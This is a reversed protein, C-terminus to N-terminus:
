TRRTHGTPHVTDDVPGPPRAPSSLEWPGTVAMRTSGGIRHELEIREIRADIRAPIVDPREFTWSVWSVRGHPQVRADVLRLATGDPLTVELSPVAVVRVDDRGRVRLIGTLRMLDDVVVLTLLSVVVDGHEATADLLSAWPRGVDFPPTEVVEGIARAIHM